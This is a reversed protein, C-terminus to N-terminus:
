LDGARGMSSCGGCIDSVTEVVTLSLSKLGSDAIGRVDM